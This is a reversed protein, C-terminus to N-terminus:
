GVVRCAAAMKTLRTQQDSRATVSGILVEKNCSRRRRRPKCSHLQRGEGVGRIQQQKQEMEEETVAGDVGEAQSPQQQLNEKPETM